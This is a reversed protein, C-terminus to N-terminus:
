KRKIGMSKMHYDIFMEPTDFVEDTEVSDWDINGKILALIIRSDFCVNTAKKIMGVIGMCVSDKGEKHGVYGDAKPDTKHCSYSINKKKIGRMVDILWEPSGFNKTNKRFPCSNCPKM